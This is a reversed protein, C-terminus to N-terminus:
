YHSFGGICSQPWAGPAFLSCVCNVQSVALKGGHTLAPCVVRKGGYAPAVNSLLACQYGLLSFEGAGPSRSLLM